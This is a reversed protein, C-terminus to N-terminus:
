SNDAEVADYIKQLINSDASMVRNWSPIVPTMHPNQLFANGALIISQAFLEIAKEEKHRDLTLGNM